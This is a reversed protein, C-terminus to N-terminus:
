PQEKTVSAVINKLVTDMPLQGAEVQELLFRVVEARFGVSGLAKRVDADLVNSKRANCDGCILQYNAWATEGFLSYPWVHDGHLYDIMSHDFKRQCIPCTFIINGQDDSEAHRRFLIDKWGAPFLRSLPNCKIYTPEPGVEKRDNSM